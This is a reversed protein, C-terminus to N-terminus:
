GGATIILDTWVSTVVEAINVSNGFRLMVYHAFCPMKEM